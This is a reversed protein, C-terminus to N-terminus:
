DNLKISRFLDIEPASFFKRGDPLVSVCVSVLHVSECCECRIKVMSVIHHIGLSSQPVEGVIVPSGTLWHWRCGHKRCHLWCMLGMFWGFRKALPVLRPRFRHKDTSM